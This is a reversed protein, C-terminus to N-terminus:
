RPRRERPTGAALLPRRLRPSASWASTSRTPGLIGALQGGAVRNAPIGVRRERVLQAALLLSRIRVDLQRTAVELLAAIRSLAAREVCRRERKRQRSTPAEVFREREEHQHRACRACSERELGHALDRSCTLAPVLCGPQDGGRTLLRLDSLQQGQGTRRGARPGPPRRRPRHSARPSAGADIRLPTRRVRPRSPPLATGDGTRRPARRFRSFSASRSSLAASGTNAFSPETRSASRARRNSPPTVIYSACASPGHESLGDGRGSVRSSVAPWGYTIRTRRPPYM